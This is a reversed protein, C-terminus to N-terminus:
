TDAFGPSAWMSAYMRRAQAPTTIIPERRRVGEEDTDGWVNVGASDTDDYRDASSHDKPLKRHCNLEYLRAPDPLGRAAYRERRRRAARPKSVIIM